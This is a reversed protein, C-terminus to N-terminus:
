YGDPLFKLLSRRLTGRLQRLGDPQAVPFM